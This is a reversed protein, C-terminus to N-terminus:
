GDTWSLVQKGLYKLFLYKYKLLYVFVTKSHHAKQFFAGLTKANGAKEEDTTSTEMMGRKM